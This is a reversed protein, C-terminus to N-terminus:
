LGGTFLSKFLDMAVDFAEQHKLNCPLWYSATINSQANPIMKPVIIVGSGEATVSEGVLLKMMPGMEDEVGVRLEEQKVAKEDSAPPKQRNEPLGQSKNQAGQISKALGENKEEEVGKGLAADCIDPLSNDKVCANKSFAWACQRAISLARQKADFYSGLYQIGVFIIIMFFIVLIAEVYAAGRMHLARGHAIAVRRRPEPTPTRPKM